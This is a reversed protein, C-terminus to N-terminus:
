DRPSLVCFENGAPDTLVRWTVEGQGVDAPRAGLAILRDVEAAQDGRANPAVDLHVPIKPEAPGDGGALVELFPGRGDPRRLSVSVEDEGVASWGSAAEWFPALAKPDRDHLVIAAVSGTDAYVTRPELVCFANGEPDALVEWDVNGQGVDLPSAGAACFRAVRARQDDLSTSRLDLHVRRVGREPDAVPVFVLAPAEGEPSVVDVEDATETRIRWGLADAWFRALAAPNRADIVVSVL